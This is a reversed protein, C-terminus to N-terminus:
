RTVSAYDPLSELWLARAIIYWASKAACELWVSDADSLIVQASEKIFERDITRKRLHKARDLTEEAVMEALSVLRDPALSKGM